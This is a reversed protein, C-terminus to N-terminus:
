AGKGALLARDLRDVSAWHDTVAHADKFAQWATAAEARAAEAAEARAMEEAACERLTDIDDYAAAVEECKALYASRHKGSIVALHENDQCLQAIADSADKQSAKGALIQARLLNYKESQASTLPLAEVEASTIDTM